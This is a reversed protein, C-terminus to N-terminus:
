VSSYFSFAPGEARQAREPHCNMALSSCAHRLDSPASALVDIVPKLDHIFKLGDRRQGQSRGKRGADRRGLRLLREILAEPRMVRLHGTQLRGHYRRQDLGVRAQNL